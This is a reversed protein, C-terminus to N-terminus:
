YFRVGEICNNQRSIQVLNDWFDHIINNPLNNTIRFSQTLNNTIYNMNMLGIRPFGFDQGNFIQAPVFSYMGNIRNNFTAGRYLRLDIDIQNNFFAKDYVIDFYMQSIQPINLPNNHPNYDIWDAVVFVTDLQFFANPSRANIVSGFLILSGIDLISLQTPHPFPNPRFQQCLLYKFETDFIYPDTNQLQQGHPIPNPLDSIHLWAPYLNNGNQNLPVVHSPPEWECWFMLYGCQVQNNDVYDGKHMFFKRKHGNTNWDKHNNLPPNDPRHESGPHLFQIISPM